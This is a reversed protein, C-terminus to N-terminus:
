KINVENRQIRYLTHPLLPDDQDLKPHDFLRVHQMGIKQMVRESRKNLITTFSYIEPISLKTLGFELAKRAGETGLGIGWSSPHTRWGIEVWEPGCGIDFSPHMLGIFGIFMPEEMDMRDVAYGCFGHQDYHRICMNILGDSAKASLTKPFYEMVVPDANMARLPEYDSSNWERFGLRESTFLYKNSM